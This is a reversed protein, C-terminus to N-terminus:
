SNPAPNISWIQPHTYGGAFTVNDLWWTRYDVPITQAPPAAGIFLEVDEVQYIPNEGDLLGWSLATQHGVEAVMGVYYIYAFIHHRAACDLIIFPGEWPLGPRKLWATQGDSGCQMVAIGDVFQSMDVGKLEANAEMVGQAYWTVDGISSQPMPSAWPAWNVLGPVWLGQEQCYGNILQSLDVESQPGTVCDQTDEANVPTVTALVLALLIILFRM